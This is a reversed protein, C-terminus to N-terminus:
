LVKNLIDVIFVVEGDGLVTAGSLGEFASLPRLLPKVFVEQNGLIRDVRVGIRRGKKEAVFLSTTEGKLPGSDINLLRSLSIVPLKSGDLFFVEENDILAIEESKLEITRGVATLPVALTLKGATVLLVNIIAVTLPLRLVFTSGKDAGTEISMTGNLSQITTRVVDMGVGRGSIGTIKAATSFGPLCILLLKEDASLTSAKEKQIAGKAVAESAIKDPDMGRGDDEVRIEVQDKDRFVSISVRGTSEKGAAKREAPTEIGHDLSNRLIHALPDGLLELISRDLEIEVGSMSFTVEKGSERALDRIMRPFRETIMSLPILRVAMVQDHLERIAKGLSEMAEYFDRNRLSKSTMSLRHKVTVLEGTTKLLRDLVTTRIKVTQQVASTEGKATAPQEIGPSRSVRAEDEVSAVDSEAGASPDYAAIRALLADPGKGGNGGKEIDDVMASLASEGALLIDFLGSDIELGQRVRDMLNEMGHALEAAQKFGMSAAMGKVSHASRFLEDITARDKPESELVIVLKSISKLHERVESIFLDHYQSM